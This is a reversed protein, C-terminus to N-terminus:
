HQHHQTSYSCSITDNKRSQSCSRVDQFMKSWSRRMQERETGGLGSQVPSHEGTIRSNDIRQKQQTKTSVRTYTGRLVILIRTERKSCNAANGAAQIERHWLRIKFARGLKVEKLHSAMLGFRDECGGFMELHTGEHM